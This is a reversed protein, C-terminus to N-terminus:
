TSGAFDALKGLEQPRRVNTGDAHDARASGPLRAERDLDREPELGFKAVADAKDGEGRNRGCVTDGSRHRLREGDLFPQARGLVLAFVEDTHERPAQAASLEEENEVVEFM